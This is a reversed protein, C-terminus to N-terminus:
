DHIHISQKSWINKNIRLLRAVADIERYELNSKQLRLFGAFPKIGTVGLLVELKFCTIADIMIVPLVNKLEYCEM